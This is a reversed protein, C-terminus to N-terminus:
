KFGLELKKIPPRLIANRVKNSQKIGRYVFPDGMNPQL